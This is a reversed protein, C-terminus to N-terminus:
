PWQLRFRDDLPLRYGSPAVYGLFRGFVANRSLELPGTANPPFVISASETILGVHIWALVVLESCFFTGGAYSPVFKGDFYQELQSLASHAVQAMQAKLQQLGAANFPAGVHLNSFNRLAAERAPDWFVRDRLIALHGHDQLLDDAGDLRVGRHDAHLIQGEGMSIGVHDYGGTGDHQGATLSSYCLVVDGPLLASTCVSLHPAILSSM